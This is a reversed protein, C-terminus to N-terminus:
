TLLLGFSNVLLADTVQLFYVHVRSESRYYRM